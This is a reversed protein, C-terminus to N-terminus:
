AHFMRLYMMLSMCAVLGSLIVTSIGLADGRKRRVTTANAISTAAAGLGIAATLSLLVTVQSMGATMSFDAATTMESLAVFAVLSNMVVVAVAMGYDTKVRPIKRLGFTPNNWGTITYVLTLAVAAAVVLPHVKVSTMPVSMNKYSQM